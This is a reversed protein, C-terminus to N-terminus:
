MYTLPKMEHHCPNDNTFISVIVQMTGFDYQHNSCFFLLHSMACLQLSLMLSEESHYHYSKKKTDGFQWEAPIMNDKSFVDACLCHSLLLFATYWMQGMVYIVSFNQISVSVLIIVNALHVFIHLGSQLLQIFHNQVAIRSKLWRSTELCLGASSCCLVFFPLIRRLFVINEHLYTLLISQEISGVGDDFTDTQYIVCHPVLACVAAVFLTKSAFYSRSCASSSHGLRRSLSSICSFMVWFSLVYMFMPIFIWRLLFWYQSSYTRGDSQPNIVQEHNSWFYLVLRATLLACLEMFISLSFKYIKRVYHPEFTNASRSNKASEVSNSSQVLVFNGVRECLRLISIIQLEFFYVSAEEIIFSNSFSSMAHFVILGCSIFFSPTHLCSLFSLPIALAKRMSNITYIFCLLVPVIGTVMSVIDFQSWQVRIVCCYKVDIFSIFM